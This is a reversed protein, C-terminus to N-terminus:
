IRPGSILNYYARELRAFHERQEKTLLPVVDELHLPRETHQDASWFALQQYSFSASVQQKGPQTPSPTVPMWSGYILREVARCDHRTCKRFTQDPTLQWDHGVDRCAHNTSQLTSVQTSSQQRKM